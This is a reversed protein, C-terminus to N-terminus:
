ICFCGLWSSRIPPVAISCRLCTNRRVAISRIAFVDSCTSVPRLRAHFATVLRDVSRNPAALNAHGEVRAAGTRAVGGMRRRIDQLRDSTRTSLADERAQTVDLTHPAPRLANEDAEFALSKRAAELDQGGRSSSWSRYADSTRGRHPTSQVVSDAAHVERCGDLIFQRFRPKLRDVQFEVVLFMHPSFLTSHLAAVCVAAHEIADDRFALVTATSVGPCKLAHIM